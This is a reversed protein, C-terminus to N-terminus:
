NHQGRGGFIQNGGLSSGGTPPFGQLGLYNLPVYYYTAWTANGVNNEHPNNYFPCTGTTPNASGSCTTVSPATVYAYCGLCSIGPDATMDVAIYNMSGGNARCGTLDCVTAANSLISGNFTSGWTNGSAETFSNSTVTFIIPTWGVAIKANIITAMYGWTTAPTASDTVKDNIGCQLTFINFKRSSSYLNDMLTTDFTRLANCTIGGWAYNVYQIQPGTSLVPSGGVLPLEPWASTVPFAGSPFTLSDGLNLILSPYCTGKRTADTVCGTGDSFNAINITQGSGCTTSCSWSLSATANTQISTWSRDMITSGQAASEVTWGSSATQGSITLYNYGTYIGAFSFGNPEQTVFNPAAITHNQLTSGGFTGGPTFIWTGGGIPPAYEACSITGWQGTVGNNWTNGRFTATIAGATYGTANITYFIESQSGEAANINRSLNPTSYYLNGAPDTLVSPPGKSVTSDAVFCVITNGTTPSWTGTVVSTANSANFGTTTHLPTIGWAYGAAMLLILARM